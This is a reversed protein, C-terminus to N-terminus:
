APFNFRRRADIPGRIGVPPGPPHRTPLDDGQVKQPAGWSMVPYAGYAGYAKGLAAAFTLAIGFLSAQLQFQQQIRAARFERLMSVYPYGLNLSLPAGWPVEWNKLFWHGLGVLPLDRIVDKKKPKSTFCM